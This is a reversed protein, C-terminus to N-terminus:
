FHDSPKEYDGPQSAPARILLYITYAWLGNVFVFLLLDSVM